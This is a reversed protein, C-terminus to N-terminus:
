PPKGNFPIDDWLISFSLIPYVTDIPLLDFAPHRIAYCIYYIHNRYNKIIKIIKEIKKLNVAKFTSKFHNQCIKLIIKSNLM